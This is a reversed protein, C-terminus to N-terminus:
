PTMKPKGFTAFFLDYETPSWNGLPSYVSFAKGEPYDNEGARVIYLNFYVDGEWAANSSRIVLYYIDGPIVEIDPFDFEYFKPAFEYFTNQGLTVSTLDPGSLNRRISVTLPGPNNRRFLYLMVKTLVTYNPKFSQAIWTNEDERTAGVSYANITFNKVNYQDLYRLNENLFGINLEGTYNDQIQPHTYNKVEPPLVKVFNFIEEASVWNDNNGEIDGFGQLARFSLGSFEQASEEDAGCSTLIVRNEGQLYSTASGSHCAEVMILLGRYNINNIKEALESYNLDKDELEIYNASGHTSLYLLVTDNSDSNDTVWALAASLNAYTADERYLCKIHDEKWGDNILIDKLNSPENGVGRTSTKLTIAWYEVGPEPSVITICDGGKCDTGEICPIIPGWDLCHDSDYYGCVQYGSDACRKLGNQSCENQCTIEPEVEEPQTEEVPAPIEEEPFVIEQSTVEEEEKSEVIEEEAPKEVMEPTEPIEKSFYYYVSGGVLGIVVLVIIIVFISQGKYFLNSKM